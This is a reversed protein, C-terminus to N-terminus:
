PRLALTGCPLLHQTRQFIDACDVFVEARRSELVDNGLLIRNLFQDSPTDAQPVMVPLYVIQRAGPPTDVEFEVRIRHQDCAAGHRIIANTQVPGAGAPQYLDSLHRPLHTFPEEPAYEVEIPATTRGHVGRLRAFCYFRFVRSARFRGANIHHPIRVSAYLPFRWTTPPAPNM